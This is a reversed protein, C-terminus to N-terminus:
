LIERRCQSEFISTKSDVRKQPNERTYAESQTRYAKNKDTRMPTQVAVTVDSDVTRTETHWLLSTLYQAATRFVTAASQSNLHLQGTHPATATGSNQSNAKVSSAHQCHKQTKYEKICEAQATETHVTATDRRRESMRWRSKETGERRWVGICRNMEVWGRKRQRWEELM